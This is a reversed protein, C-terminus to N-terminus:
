GMLTAMFEMRAIAGPPTSNKPVNAFNYYYKQSVRNYVGGQEARNEIEVVPVICVEADAYSYRCVCYAICPILDGAQRQAKILLKDVASESVCTPKSEGKSLKRGMVHILLDPADESPHTAIIYGDFETAEYGIVNLLATTYGRAITSTSANKM